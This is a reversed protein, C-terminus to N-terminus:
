FNARLVELARQRKTDQTINGKKKRKKFYPINRGIMKRSEKIWDTPYFSLYHRLLDMGRGDKIAPAIKHKFRGYETSYQYDTYRLIDPDNDERYNVNGFLQKQLDTDLKIVGSTIALYKLHSVTPGTFQSLLGFTARDEKNIDLLDAEIRKIRNLTENEVINHLNGNLVISGLSILGYLTGYRYAYQLEPSDWQRAKVSQIAGKTEKIHTELLSMPYHLLHFAIESVGGEVGSKNTSKKTVYFDGAEDVIIGDGRVFKNKAFPSYEYAWGNVMKIAFNKSHTKIELPSLNSNNQLEAYKMLFSTQFMHQRQANETMRHFTLLKSITLDGFNNLQDRLRTDNFYYQGDRENFKLDGKSYVDRTTFGELLSADNPAFLFGEEQAVEDFVKRIRDNTYLKKADLVAKPGVKSWYHFVSAANKIAGTVNLGMTRATQFGNFTRVMENVWDERGLNSETAVAYEETIFTKLGKIFDTGSNPINKMAKVYAHQLFTNKNFQVADRAYKEIVVFPDNEWIKRLNEDPYLRAKLNKSMTGGLAQGINYVESNLKDLTNEIAHFQTEKVYDNMHKKMNYLYELEVRPFYNGAKIGDQIREKAAKINERLTVKKSPEGPYDKLEITQQLKDLTRIHVNGLANLIEKTTRVANGVSIDYDQRVERGDVERVYGEQMAKKFERSGMRVLTNYESLLKGENSAFLADIQGKVDAIESLHPSKVLRDRLERFKNYSKNGFITKSQLGSDVHAKLILDRVSQLQQEVMTVANREYNKTRELDMLLEQSAPDLRAMGRPVAFVGAINKFKGALDRNYSDISVQFRRYEGESFNVQAKLPKDFIDGLFSLMQKKALPEDLVGNKDQYRRKINPKSKWYDFLKDIREANIDIRSSPSCYALGGAM